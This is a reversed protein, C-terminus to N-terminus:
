GGCRRARVDDSCILPAYHILLSIYGPVGTLVGELPAASLWRDLARVQRNLAPALIDGWEILVASEGVPVIRPAAEPLKKM